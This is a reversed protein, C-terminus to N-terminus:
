SAEALRRALVGGGAQLRGDCLERVEDVHKLLRDDHTSFVFTVGHEANLKRMLQVLSLANASDLSATPEDALILTPRTVLARAVGVRQRQGGSLRDPLFTAYRELGVWRLAEDVRSAREQRSLQQLQLPM